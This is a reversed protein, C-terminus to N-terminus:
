LSYKGCSGLICVCNLWDKAEKGGKRRAQRGAKRGELPFPPLSVDLHSLFMSRNSRMRVGELSWVQLGSM